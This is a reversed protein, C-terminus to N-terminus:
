GNMLLWVVWIMAWNDTSYLNKVPHIFDVHFWKKIAYHSKNWVEALESYAFGLADFVVLALYKLLPCFLIFLFLINFFFKEFLFLLLFGIFILKLELGILVNFLLM